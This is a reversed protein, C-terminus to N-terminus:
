EGEGAKTTVKGAKSASIDFSMPTTPASSTGSGSSGTWSIPHTHSNLATMFATIAQNLEEYTVLHSTNGNLEVKKETDIQLTGKDVKFTVRADKNFICLPLAKMTDRTYHIFTAQDTSQTVKAVQPIYDKLGLLLVQDGPEVDWQISFGAGCLTLVELNTTRTEPLKVGEITQQRKAHTVNVTGDANVKSVFGYDLIYFNGLLGVIMDRESLGTFEIMTDRM